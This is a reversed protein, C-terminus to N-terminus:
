MKQRLHRQRERAVEIIIKARYTPVTTDVASGSSALHTKTDWGVTASRVLRGLRAFNAFAATVHRQLELGKLPLSTCPAKSYRRTKANRCGPTM